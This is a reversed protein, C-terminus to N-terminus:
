FGQPHTKLFEIEEESSLRHLVVNRAPFRGFELIVDYHRVAFDIGRDAFPKEETTAKDVLVQWLAVCAIQAVLNESHELPLYLFAQQMITLQANLGKGIATTAIELAKGDSAYAAASNRYINRPFQDLLLVLALCGQPSQAWPDLESSTRALEVLNGFRSAIEADFKADSIFWRSPPQKPDFWFALIANVRPDEGVTTNHAMTIYPAVQSVTPLATPASLDLTAVVTYIISCGTLLKPFSHGMVM